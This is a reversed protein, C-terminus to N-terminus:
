TLLSNLHVELYSLVCHFSCSKTQFRESPAASDIKGYWENSSEGYHLSFDVGTRQALRYVSEINSWKESMLNDM